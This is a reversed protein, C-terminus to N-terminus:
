RIIVDSCYRYSRGFISKLQLAHNKNAAPNARGDVLLLKAVKICGKKCAKKIAYNDDLCPDIGRALLIQYM